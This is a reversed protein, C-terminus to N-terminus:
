TGRLVAVLNGQGAYGYSSHAIVAREGSRVREAARAVCELGAAFVPNSRWLGGSKNVGALTGKIVAEGISTGDCLGLGVASMCLRFTSRDTTEAGSHVSPQFGAEDYASRAIAPLSGLPGPRETPAAADAGWAMGAVSVPSPDATVLVAVAGQTAPPVHRRKLPYALWSEFESPAGGALRCALEDAVDARMGSSTLFLSTALAEGVWPHLGTPRAYTPEPNVGLAADLCSADPKTWSVVLVRRSVGAEIRLVAAALGVAGDDAIKIEDRMRAGSPGALHMSSIARGDLQDSAALCVGDIDDRSLEADQLAAAAAGFVLEELSVDVSDPRHFGIGAIYPM